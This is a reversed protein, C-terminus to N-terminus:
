SMWGGAPLSGILASVAQAIRHDSGSTFTTWLQQDPSVGPSAVLRGRETDYVVVAGPARCTSGADHTCAVLEAYANCTALASGFEIATREEVGLAYVAQIYGASDVVGDLRERLAEAPVSFSGVRAPPCSDLEALFPRALVAGSEDAWTPRIDFDDGFRIAVAHQPGRRALCVRRLGTATHIRAVLEREPQALVYLAAALDAAVEGGDDVFGSSRLRVRARRHAASWAAVTDHRYGVGLVVPLTQINLLGTLALLEDTTVTATEGDEAPYSTM